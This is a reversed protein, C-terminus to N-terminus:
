SMVCLYDCELRSTRVFDTKCVVFEIDIVVYTYDIYRLFDFQVPEECSWTKLVTNVYITRFVKEFQKIDYIQIPETTVVVM